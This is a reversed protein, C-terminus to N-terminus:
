GLTLSYECYSHTVPVVETWSYEALSIPQSIWSQLLLEDLTMRQTPDPQLLGCLVGELDSHTCLSIQDCLQLFNKHFSILKYGAIFFLMGLSLPFPPKLKADLIEQVGCFPNESFLLTYLLVGLSWMELEPGEYSCCVFLSVIVLSLM